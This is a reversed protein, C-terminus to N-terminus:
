RNNKNNNIQMQSKNKLNPNYLRVILKQLTSKMLSPNSLHAMKGYDKRRKNVLKIMFFEWDM